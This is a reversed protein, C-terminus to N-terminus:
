KFINFLLLSFGTSYLLLMGRNWKLFFSPIFTIHLHRQLNREMLCMAMQSLVSLHLQIAVIQLNM